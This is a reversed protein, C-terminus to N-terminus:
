NNPVVTEGFFPEVAKARTDRVIRLLRRVYYEFREPIERRLTEIRPTFSRLAMEFRKFNDLTKGRGNDNKNLFKITDDMIAHFGGLEKFMTNFAEQTNLEEAKRLHTEMLEIALKTHNKLDSQAELADREEKSLAKVPPAAANPPDEDQAKVNSLSCQVIILFIVATFFSKRFGNIPLRRSIISLHKM